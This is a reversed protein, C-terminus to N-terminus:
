PKLQEWSYAPNGFHGYAATQEYIPRRLGLAAIIGQVSTDLATEVFAQIVAPKAKATGFTEVHKMVPQKAGIFYALSVEARDALGAAVLNKALYRAAYAGSRDVKTADKGSFAGGGVRAYGGYSDVIIKRGTLGADSAPGPQHWIGTGNLVYQRRNGELGYRALVPEVVQQWIAEAVDTHAMHPDHPKAITIHELGVPRDDHYRITVQAKGDPRLYTLKQHAVDLERTLAHAVMIPLPMYEPTDRCAYGFMM